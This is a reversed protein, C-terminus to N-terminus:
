VCVCVCVRVQTGPLRKGPVVQLIQVQAEGPTGAARTCRRLVKGAGGSSRLLLLPQLRGDVGGSHAAHEQHLHQRQGGPFRVPAEEQVRSGSPQLPPDGSQRRVAVRPLLDRLEGRGLHGHRHRIQRPSQVLVQRDCLARRCHHSDQNAPGPRHSPSEARAVASEWKFHLSWDFG